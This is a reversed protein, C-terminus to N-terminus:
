AGEFPDGGPHLAYWEAWILGKAAGEAYRADSYDHRPPAGVSRLHAMHMNWVTSGRLSGKKAKWGCTCGELMRVGQGSRNFWIVPQHDSAKGRYEGFAELGRKGPAFHLRLLGMRLAHAQMLFRFEAESQRAAQQAVLVM